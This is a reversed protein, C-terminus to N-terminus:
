AVRRVRRRRASLQDLRAEDVDDHHGDGDTQTSLHDLYDQVQRATTRRVRSGPYLYGSRLHQGREPNDRIEWLTTKSIGGLLERLEDDNYARMTELQVDRVERLILYGLPPRSCLSLM